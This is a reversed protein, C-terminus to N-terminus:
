YVPICINDLCELSTPPSIFACDSAGGCNMNFNEQTTNYNEVLNTLQLTDISTSYTLYSWPGGCPKAGFAIYRCEFDESCISANVLEDIEIQLNNLCSTIDECNTIGECNSFSNNIIIPEDDNSDCQFAMLLLSFSLFSLLRLTKKM